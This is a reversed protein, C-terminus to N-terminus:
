QKLYIIRNILYIRFFVTGKVDDLKILEIYRSDYSDNRNDGLAFFYEKFNQM